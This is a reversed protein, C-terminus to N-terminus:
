TTAPKEFSWLRQTNASTQPPCVDLFGLDTHKNM